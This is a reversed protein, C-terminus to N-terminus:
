FVNSPPDDLLLDARRLVRLRGGNIPWHELMHVQLFRIPLRIAPGMQIWKRKEGVETDGDGM